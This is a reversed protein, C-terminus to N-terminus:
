RSVMEIDLVEGVHLCTFDDMGLQCQSVSVNM